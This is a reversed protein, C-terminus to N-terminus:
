KEDDSLVGNGIFTGNRYIEVRILLGDNNYRYWKGNHLKGNKFEGSQTVDGNQNYLTNFGNPKFTEAANTKDTSAKSSSGVSKDYPDKATTNSPKVPAISKTQKLVGNEFVKEEVLTGDQNYRRMVGAENGNVINVEMAMKGNEHYYKQMGNRKGNDAFIFHQQPNGNNYFRKFEGTNKNSTWIGHEETLGNEYYLHYEGSPKGGAYTIQSRVKGNPWYKKWLGEKRNDQYRGEEVKHEPKYAPDNIMDGKIIWYGQRQGKDDIRNIDNAIQNALVGISLLSALVLLLHLPYHFAKRTM